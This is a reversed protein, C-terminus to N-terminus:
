RKKRKVGPGSGPGAGSGSGSGSSKSSDLDDRTVFANASCITVAPFFNGNQKEYTVSTVPEWENIRDLFVTLEWCLLFGSLGIVIIWATKRAMGKQRVLQPLGQFTCESFFHSAYPGIQVTELTEYEQNTENPPFALLQGASNSRTQKTM